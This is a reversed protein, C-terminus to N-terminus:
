TGPAMAYVREVIELAAIADRLGPSSDRGQEIDACFERLEVQWSDDAM